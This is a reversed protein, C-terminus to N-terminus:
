GIIKAALRPDAKKFGETLADAVAVRGNQIDLWNRLENSSSCNSLRKFEALERIADDLKDEFESAKEQCQFAYDQAQRLESLRTKEDKRLPDICAPPLKECDDDPGFHLWASKRSRFVEDCHFCRWTKAKM